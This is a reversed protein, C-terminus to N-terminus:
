GGYKFTLYLIAIGIGFLGGLCLIATVTNICEARAVLMIVDKYKTLVVNALETGLAETEKVLKDRLESM